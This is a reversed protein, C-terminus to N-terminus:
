IDRISLQGISQMLLVFMLLLTMFIAFRRQTRQSMTIFVALLRTLARLVIYITLATLLCGIIIMFSNSSLPNILSFFVIDAVLLPIVVKISPYVNTIRRM